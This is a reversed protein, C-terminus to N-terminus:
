MTAGTGYIREGVLRLKMPMLPDAYHEQIEGKDTFAFINGEALGCEQYTGMMDGVAFAECEARKEADWWGPLLGSRSEALDLFRKFQPVCKEEADFIGTVQGRFVYMDRVRM